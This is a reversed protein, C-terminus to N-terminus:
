RQQRMPEILYQRLVPLFDKLFERCTDSSKLDTGAPLTASVQIKYLYPWGAFAFRADDPASWRNGAGWAYYVCLVDEQVRKSKFSLAWFQDEHGQVDSIAVQRRTDRSTYNSSSYCIEPTHVAIPGAPGVTVFLSVVDGTRRNAYTRVFYGTCELMEITDENMAESSQLQWRDNQPGGFRRPVEELRQAAARMTDSPGWRNRIRGELAGGLLTLAVVAALGLVISLRKKNM